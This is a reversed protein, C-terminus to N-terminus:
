VTSKDVNLGRYLTTPPKSHNMAEAVKTAWQISALQGKYAGPKGSADEERMAAFHEPDSWQEISKFIGQTKPVSAIQAKVQESAALHEKAAKDSNNTKLWSDTSEAPLDKLTQKPAGKAKKEAPKEAPKEKSPANKPLPHKDIRGIFHEFLKAAEKKQIEGKELATDIQEEVHDLIKERGGKVSHLSSEIRKGVSHGAESVSLSSGGTDSWQGSEDRPQDPDFADQKTQEAYKNVRGGVTPPQPEPIPPEREPTLQSPDHAMTEPNKAQELMKESKVEDLQERLKLDIQTEMSWGDPSFRNIAVEEPTLVQTTLYINDAQAIQLRLTAMEADTPQYLPHFEVKWSDPEGGNALLVLKVIREIAPKLVDKQYSKVRDYFLRISADGTANLGAPAEGMLVPVPIGTAASLRSSLRDLVDPLGTFSVPKREFTEGDADILLARAVSRSLEIMEMRRGMLEQGKDSALIELLGKVGYVAQSAETLLYSAGAYGAEFDRIVAYVRQLVSADWGNLERKKQKTTRAGPMIILRSEHVVLNVPTAGNTVRPMVRYTEPMGFKEDNLQTYWTNPQLETRDFVTLFALKGPKTENLPSSIDGSTGGLFLGGGGWLRGWCAADLLKEMTELDDLKSQIDSERQGDEDDEICVKFGQRLGEEPFISVVTHALDSTNYLNELDADTLDIDAVFKAAMRRDRRGGLGTLVNVFGDLRQQFTKGM